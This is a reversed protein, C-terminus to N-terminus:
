FYDRDGKSLQNLFKEITTISKSAFIEFLELYRM